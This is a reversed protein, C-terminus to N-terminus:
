ASIKGIAKASVAAFDEGAAVFDRAGAAIHQLLKGQRLRYPILCIDVEV